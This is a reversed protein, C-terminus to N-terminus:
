RVTDCRQCLHLVRRGQALNNHVDLTQKKNLISYLTERNLNGFKHMRKWDRCCLVVDGTCTVSVEGIPAHCLTKIGVPTRDYISKLDVFEAEFVYYPVKVDLGSLRNFESRSYATVALIWIGLEALEDAIQQDLYFGSTLILIKSKTCKAKTYVIFPFLRPDILPENYIHFAFVGDYDIQAVEDVTKKVIRSPLVIKEKQGHLPCEKHCYAYNCINSLEFSIRKIQHMIPKNYYDPSQNKSIKHFLNDCNVDLQKYLDNQVRLVEKKTGSNTEIDAIVAKGEYGVSPPASKTELGTCIENDSQLVKLADRYIREVEDVQSAEKATMSAM